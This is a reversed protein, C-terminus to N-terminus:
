ESSNKETAFIIGEKWLRKKIIDLILIFHDEERADRKKQDKHLYLWIKVDGDEIFIRLIHYNKLGELEADKLVHTHPTIYCYFEKKKGRGKSAVKFVESRIKDHEHLGNYVHSIVDLVEVETEEAKEREEEASYRLILKYIKSNESLVREQAEIENKKLPKIEIGAVKLLEAM